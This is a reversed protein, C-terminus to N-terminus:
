GAVSLVQRANSAAATTTALQARLRRRRCMGSTQANKIALVELCEPICHRSYKSVARFIHSLCIIGQEAPLLKGDRGYFLEASRLKIRRFNQRQANLWRFDSLHRLTMGDANRSPTLKIDDTHREQSKDGAVPETVKDAGTSGGGAACGAEPCLASQSSAKSARIPESSSSAYRLSTSRWM